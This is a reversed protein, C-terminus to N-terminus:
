SKPSRCRIGRGKIVPRRRARGTPRCNWRRPCGRLQERWYGVQRELIEGQLWERQWIAYDAYQAELEPLPSPRGEEYASYLAELENASRQGVMEDSIIHHLVVLLIHEEASLRFLSVRFLEGPYTSPGGAEAQAQRLAEARRGAEPRSTLDVVRLRFGGAPDIVQRGQGDSTTEIRTRLIEHRRAMEAFSRELAAQDLAGRAGAGHNRQLRQGAAGAAGSVM